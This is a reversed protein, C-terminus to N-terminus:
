RLKIAENLRLSVNDWNIINYMANVYDTRKNQYKLYYAHEWVDVVLLPSAGWQTLKEHNECQLVILQDTMPHFAVIGWGSGDVNVSVNTLLGKFKDFSGYQKEIYKLLEGKPEKEGNKILNTWYITHLIHGSGHFASKKVWYDITGIENKELQAKIRNIDNNLGKVYGAHHMDHHLKLTQADIHPELSDYAYPLPPLIFEGKDNQLNDMGKVVYPEAFVSSSQALTTLAVASAGTKIFDRRTNDMFIERLLKFLLFLNVTSTM